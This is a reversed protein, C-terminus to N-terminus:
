PDSPFSCLGGSPPMWRLWCVTAFAPSRVKTARIGARVSSPHWDTGFPIGEVQRHVAGFGPRVRWLEFQRTRDPNRKGARGLRQARREMRLHRHGPVLEPGLAGVALHVADRQLAALSGGLLQSLQPVKSPDFPTSRQVAWVDEGTPFRRFLLRKCFSHHLRDLLASINISIPIPQLHQM